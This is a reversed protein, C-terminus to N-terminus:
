QVSPIYTTFYLIEDYNLINLSGAHLELEWIELGQQEKCKAIQAHRQSFSTIKMFNGIHKIQRQM